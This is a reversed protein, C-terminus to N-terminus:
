PARHGNSNVEKKLEGFTAMREAYANHRHISEENVQEITVFADEPLDPFRNVLNKAMARVCDEVFKPNEHATRVVFEEDQRKLLEFMPSSMSH